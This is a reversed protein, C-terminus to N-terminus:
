SSTTTTKRRRRKISPHYNVNEVVNGVYQVLFRNNNSNNSMDLRKKNEHPDVVVVMGDLHMKKFLHKAKHYMGYYHKQHLHHHHDHHHWSQNNPLPHSIMTKKQLLDLSSPGSRHIAVESGGFLALPVVVSTSKQFYTTRSVSRQTPTCYLGDM